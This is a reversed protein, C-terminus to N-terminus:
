SGPPWTRSRPGRSAPLDHPTLPLVGGQYPPAGPELGPSVEPFSPVCTGLHRPHKAPVRTPNSEWRRWQLPGTTWRSSAPRAHRRHSNLERRTWERPPLGCPRRASPQRFNRETGSGYLRYVNGITTRLYRTGRPSGPAEGANPRGPAEGAGLLLGPSTLRSGKGHCCPWGGREGGPFRPTRCPAFAFGPRPTPEAPKRTFSRGREGRGHRVAM